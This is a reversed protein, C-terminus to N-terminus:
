KESEYDSSDQLAELGIEHSDKYEIKITHNGIKLRSHSSLVDQTIENNDIITGNTSGMDRVIVKGSSNTWLQCHERSVMDDDLVIQCTKDRGVTLRSDQLRYIKSENNPSLVHIYPITLTASMTQNKSLRIITKDM